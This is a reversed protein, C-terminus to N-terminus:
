DKYFQPLQKRITPYFQTFVGDYDTHKVHCNTCSNPINRTEATEAGTGFFYFNFGTKPFRKKDKLHIELALSEGMVFGSQNLSINTKTSNFILAFMSGDPFVGTKEFEAYATPEMLVTQFNGPTEPDFKVQKNYGMGLSAGLFVWKEVGTPRILDGDHDFKAVSVSTRKDEKVEFQENAPTVAMLAALLLTKM